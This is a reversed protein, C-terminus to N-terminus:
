YDDGIDSENLYRYDHEAEKKSEHMFVRAIVTTFYAFANATKEPDFHDFKVWCQILAKQKAEDLKDPNSVLAQYKYGYRVLYGDILPIFFREMLDDM